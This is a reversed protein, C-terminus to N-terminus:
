CSLIEERLTEYEAAVENPSLAMRDVIEPDKLGSGTLVMVVRANKPLNDQKSLKYLGALTACSAPEAFIGESSALDKQAMLIEEDSVALFMGKSSKVAAMAKKANVPNGIRIATAVTEPKE